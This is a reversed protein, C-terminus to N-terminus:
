SRSVNPDAMACSTRWPRPLRGSRRWPATPGTSRCSGLVANLLVIVVIVITDKLDGVLGSIGAAALLVLIMFDYFQALFMRIPGRPREEALSNPGHAALRAQATATTLGEPGGLARLVEEASREHWNPVAAEPAM